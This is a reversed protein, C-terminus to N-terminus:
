AKGGPPKAAPVVLVKLEPAKVKQQVVQVAVARRPPEPRPPKPFMNPRERTLSAMLHPKTEAKCAQHTDRARSDRMETKYNKKVIVFSVGGHGFM